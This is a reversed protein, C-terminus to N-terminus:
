KEMWHMGMSGSNGGLANWYGIAGFMKRHGPSKDTTNTRYSRDIARYYTLVFLSVRMAPKVRM